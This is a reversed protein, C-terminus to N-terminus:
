ATILNQFHNTDSFVTSCLNSHIKFLARLITKKISTKFGVLYIKLKFNTNLVSSMVFFENAYSEHFDEMQNILIVLQDHEIPGFNLYKLSEKNSSWWEHVKSQLTWHMRTTHYSRVRSTLCFNTKSILFNLRYWLRYFQRLSFWNQNDRTRSISSTVHNCIEVFASVIDDHM